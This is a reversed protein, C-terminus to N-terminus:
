TSEMSIPAAFPEMESIPRGFAIKPYVNTHPNVMVQLLCPADNKEWLWNVGHKIEENHSITKATIGYANAIADFDPASYGWCTSQYRGEFYSDQFQRIMGLCNNNIVIIKIPLHNRAVTQLEQINMQFAGDGVIAIVPKKKYALSAGIAAPLAFGMAGMGGSTLFVQNAHIELSQAAWMQHNGVDVLYAVAQKSSQSLAHMFGNPNIGQLDKLENIDPWQKKLAEIEYLWDHSPHRKVILQTNAQEFFSKADAIIPICNKVRNNIEGEDCDIHLIIKDKAFGDIDAGTQRIDLRSGIVILLDAKALTINAWRNGYAGIFGVRMPHHFPMIDLGSLSTVVPIKTLEIFQLCEKQANACRIGGGLLLLPRKAQELYECLLDIKIPLAESRTRKRRIKKIPSVSIKEHQINMPLDILIPGPRDSIACEYAEYMVAEIQEASHIRFTKKTIPLAMPVIDTEQFGLQRIKRDGKQEYTNVQGTIFLAPSSDFYCSAIGTLLNTAGPGSTALAVGPKGTIRGYADAAFSAAQEHHVSIINANGLRYISDLLHTIMGGAVEFFHDIEQTRLFEAIYNSVKIQTM